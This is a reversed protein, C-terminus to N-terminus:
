GIRVRDGAGISRTAGPALWETEHAERSARDYLPQPRITAHTDDHARRIEGVEHGHM